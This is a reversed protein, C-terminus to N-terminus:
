CGEFLASVGDPLPADVDDPVSFKGQLLGLSRAAAAQAPVVFRAVPSGARGVRVEDGTKPLRSLQTMAEHVNVTPM